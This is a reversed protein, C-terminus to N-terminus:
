KEFFSALFFSSLLKGGTAKCVEHFSHENKEQESIWTYLISWNPGFSWNNNTQMLHFEQVTKTYNNQKMSIFRKPALSM